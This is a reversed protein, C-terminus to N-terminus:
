PSIATCSSPVVTMDHTASSACYKTGEAQNATITVAGTSVGTVVGTSSVVTAKGTAGSSWTVAGYGAGTNNVTLTATSGVEVESAGSIALTAPTACNITIDATAEGACYDGAAISATVTATGVNVPTVVGTSPNITACGAPTATISYTVAGDSGDKDLTPSATSGGATLPSTYSLSPTISTCSPTAPTYTFTIRFGGQYGSIDLTFNTAISLGTKNKSTLSSSKRNNWSSSGYLDTSSGGSPTYGVKITKNSNNAVIGEVTIATITHGSPNGFSISSPVSPISILKWKSVNANSDYIYQSYSGTVPFVTQTGINDSNITLTEGWAQGVGIISLLLVAFLKVYKSFLSKMNDNMKKNVLNVSNIVELFVNNM